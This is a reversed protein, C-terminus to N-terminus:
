VHGKLTGRILWATGGCPSDCVAVLLMVEGSEVELEARWDTGVEVMGEVTWVKKWM